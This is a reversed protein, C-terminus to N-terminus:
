IRLVSVSSCPTPAPPSLVVEVSPHFQLQPLEAGLSASVATVFVQVPVTVATKGSADEVSMDHSCPANTPPGEDPATPHCHTPASQAPACHEIACAAMCQANGAILTAAFLVALRSGWHMMGMMGTPEILPSAGLSERPM